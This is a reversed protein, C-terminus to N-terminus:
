SQLSPTQEIRRVLERLRRMGVVGRCRFEVGAGEAGPCHRAWAVRCEITQPATGGPPIIELLLATGAPPPEATRLFAGGISIDDVYSQYRRTDEPVRWGVRLETPLRRHRRQAAADAEGRALSLLYDRSDQESALFEVGLGARLNEARKGRRHWAVMGRILMHDRLAPMRVDVIVLEGPDLVQRTPLFLGGYAFADEYRDLFDSGSPFRATLIRM